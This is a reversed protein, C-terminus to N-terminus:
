NDGEISEPWVDFELGLIHIVEDITRADALAQAGCRFAVRSIYKSEDRLKLQIVEGM